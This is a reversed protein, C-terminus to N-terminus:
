IRGSDRFRWSSFGDARRTRGHLEWLNIGTTGGDARRVSAIQSGYNVYLVDVEELFSKEEATLYDESFLQSLNMNVVAILDRSYDSADTTLEHVFAGTIHDGGWNRDIVFVMNAKYDSWSFRTDNQYSDPDQVLKRFLEVNELGVDQLYKVLEDLKAADIAVLDQTATAM